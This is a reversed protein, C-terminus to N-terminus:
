SLKKSIAIGGKLQERSEREIVHGKNELRQKHM